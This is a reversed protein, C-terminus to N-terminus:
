LTSGHEEQLLQTSGEVDSAREGHGRAADYVHVVGAPQDLTRLDLPLTAKLLQDAM